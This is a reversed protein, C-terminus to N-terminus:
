LFGREHNKIEKISKVPREKLPLEETWKAFQKPTLWRLSSSPWTENHQHQIHKLVRNLQAVSRITYDVLYENKEIGNVREALGNELCNKAHSPRIEANRLMIQFSDSRYQGGEDTHLILKWKYKNKKNYKIVQRLCKEANKGDMNNNGYIGKIELSYFDTFSFIYFLSSHNRYYTIDGVIVQNTGNIDKGEILNDFKYHHGRSDTTKIFSRYPRLSHGRRSMEKEFRNVGIMATLNEKYYISRLGARSKKGRNKIVLAEAKNYLKCCDLNKKIRKNYAQRSIGIMACLEVIKYGNEIMRQM